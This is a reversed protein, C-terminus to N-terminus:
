RSAISRRRWARLADLAARYRDTDRDWADREGSASAVTWRALRRAALRARAGTELARTLSRARAPAYTKQIWRALDTWLAVPDQRSAVADRTAGITGGLLHRVHVGHLQAVRWGAGRARTCYDLDQAYTHFSSDFLGIADRVERRVAMATAPVWAAPAIADIAESARAQSERRLRRWGPVRGLAAASGSAMAFLWAADPERGASWQPRRDFYLLSAGAVGLRPDRAFAEAFRGIADPEVETDSNLLLVLDGSALPWARNIAATFGGAAHGSLVRVQPFEIAVAEATGDRGGDDVLLIELPSHTSAAIAALCKLTLVRTNHTPIVVSVSLPSAPM